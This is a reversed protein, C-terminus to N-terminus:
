DRKGRSAEDYLRQAVRHLAEIFNLAFELLRPAFDRKLVLVDPPAIGVGTLREVQSRKKSESVSFALRGRHAIANRAVRYDKLTSWSANDPIDSQLVKQIYKQARDFDSGSLDTVRLTTPRYLSLDNCTENLLDELQAVALLLFGSRAFERTVDADDEASRESAAADLLYEIEELSEFASKMFGPALALSLSSDLVKSYEDVLSM